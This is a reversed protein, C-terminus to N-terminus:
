WLSASFYTWEKKAKVTGKYSKKGRGVHQLSMQWKVKKGAITHQDIHAVTNYKITFNGQVNVPM